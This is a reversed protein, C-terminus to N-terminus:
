KPQYNFPTIEEFLYRHMLEEKRIYSRSEEYLLTSKQKLPYTNLLMHKSKMETNEGRPNEMYGSIEYRTYHYTRGEHWVSDVEFESNCLEYQYNFFSAETIRKKIWHCSDRPFEAPCDMEAARPNKVWVYEVPTKRLWKEVTIKECPRVKYEWYSPLIELSEEVATYQPIKDGKYGPKILIMKPVTDMIPKQVVPKRMTPSDDYFDELMRYRYESYITDPFDVITLSDNQANSQIPWALLLLFLVCLAEGLGIFRASRSIPSPLVKIMLALSHCLKM